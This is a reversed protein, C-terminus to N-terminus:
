QILSFSNRQARQGSLNGPLNPWSFNASSKSASPFHCSMGSTLIPCYPGQLAPGHGAAEGTLASCGRAPLRQLEWQAGAGAEKRLGPDETDAGRCAEQSEFNQETLSFASELVRHIGTLGWDGGNAELNEERSGDRGVEHVAM